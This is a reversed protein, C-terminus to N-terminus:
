EDKNQNIIKFIENAIIKDSNKIGLKGANISLENIKEPNTILNLATNIMKEKTDIDKILIAADKKVLAMANKAQHDEAVNPSPVLISAKKLLCLESITAAGARSIVLDAVLYAYDMRSIFDHVKCNNTNSKNLAEKSKKYYYKGTQWIIQVNSKKINELGAIVGENISRAGGSGGLILITNVDSKLGFYNFAATKDPKNEFLTQRVPNGTKIIKEKPFYREMQDYAVCIKDAYKALLKNTIGAYSNQEQLLVPIGKKGAVWGVPGSAFGGVGVVIDPKFNNIIKRSLFLSKILKFLVNINKFTMKRELGRIPLAKIPYGAAPVKEMEIKGEAGVFLIDIENHEKKLANAIAIAPFVHGGTGGGSIIVKKTKM